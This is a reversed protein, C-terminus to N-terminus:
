VVSFDKKGIQSRSVARNDIPLKNRFVNRDFQAILASKRDTRQRKLEFELRRFDNMAVALDNGIVFQVNCASSPLLCYVIYM